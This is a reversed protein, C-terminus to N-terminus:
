LAYESAQLPKRWPLPTGRPDAQAGGRRAESRGPQASGGLLAYSDCTGPEWSPSLVWHGKWDRRRPPMDQETHPHAATQQAEPSWSKQEGGLSPSCRPSRHPPAPSAPGSSPSLASSAGPARPTRGSGSGTCPALGLEASLALRRHDRRHQTLPEVPGLTM